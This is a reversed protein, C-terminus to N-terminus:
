TEGPVPLRLRQNAYITGRANLNNAIMIDSAKLGHMMAIESVTDGRRVRYFRSPKQQDRFIHDPLTSLSAPSKKAPLHLRYGKPVYKQESYVPPRLSPNFKRITEIEVKLHESLDRISAYGELHVEITEVPKKLAIAGFYKVYNKAVDRAALFESYFNRSAFKFIRSRYEKFINEYGGKRRVARLVGAMGHNYATIALPWSQVTGYNQKLLKAAARSSMIPDRREDLTYDVNMFRKGTTRTFQWIGAAGYKSYAEPNFSSEVHPLYALDEPVHHQRCIDKIDDLHAGSRIIGERFRDKQGIQCRIRHIAKRFFTSDAESDFLGSLRRAEPDLTNPDRALLMLIKKVRKKGAKIQKRNFTRAGCTDPARLDIIDYILHLNESDHLIGKTTPYEAYVKTWFRVNSEICPYVPFADTAKCPESVCFLLTLYLLCVSFPSAHNKKM